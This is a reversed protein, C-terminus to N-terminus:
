TKKMFVFSFNLFSFEKEEESLKNYPREKIFKSYWEEFNMLGIFMLNYKKCVNKLEDMDVMYELSPKNRFYHSEGEKTSGLSVLYTNGYPTYPDSLNTKNKIYYLNKTVEDGEMFLKNIKEGSMTTGIFIGNNKIYKDVIRIFTDLTNSTRFFYHIAFQCSVINFKENKVKKKIEPLNNEDSLDLTYFDYKLLHRSKRKLNEFRRKAEIISDNDIDFGVVRHIRNRNWKHMDGGRGVALDFLTIINEDYENKLYEVSEKILQNKIWNHFRRLNIISSDKRKM